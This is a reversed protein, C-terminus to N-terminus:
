RFTRSFAWLASIVLITTVVVAAYVKNWFADPKEDPYERNEMTIM